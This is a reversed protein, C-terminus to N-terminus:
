ARTDPNEADLVGNEKEQSIVTAKQIEDPQVSAEGEEQQPFLTEMITDKLSMGMAALKAASEKVDEMDMKDRNLYYLGYAGAIAGGLFALTVKTGTGM